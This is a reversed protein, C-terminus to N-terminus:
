ISSVKNKGTQKAYCLSKDAQSFIVEIRKTTDPYTAIGISVTIYIVKGNPLMFPYKEIVARIREAIEIAKTNNCNYLLIAFKDREMRGLIDLKCCAGRLIYALSKLMCDGALDGYIDNVKRFFDIDIVLVSIPVKKEKANEIAQSLLSTFNKINNLGTLCDKESQNKIKELKENTITIWELLFYIAFCTIMTCIWFFIIVIAISPLNSVFLEQFKTIANMIYAVGKV